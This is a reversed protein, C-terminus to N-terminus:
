KEGQSVVRGIGQEATQRVVRPSGYYLVTGISSIDVDLTETAWVTANGIGTIDIITTETLLDPAYYNGAGTLSIDQGKVEGSVIVSSAGTLRVVLEDAALDLISLQGAGSVELHLMDTELGDISLNGAGALDLRSLDKVVVNYQIGDSPSISRNRAASTFGLVLTDQRVDVDIYPMINDDTTVSLSEEEGQTVILEGVGELSIRDFDSVEWEQTLITGSGDIDPRLPNLSCGSLLIGLALLSLAYATRIKMINEKHKL